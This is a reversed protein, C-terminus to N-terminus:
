FGRCSRFCSGLVKHLGDVSGLITAFSPLCPVLERTRLTACANYLEAELTASLIVAQRGQECMVSTGAIARSVVAMYATGFTFGASRLILRLSLPGPVYMNPSSSSRSPHRMPKGIDRFLRGHTQRKATGVM